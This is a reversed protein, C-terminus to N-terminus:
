LTFKLVWVSSIKLFAPCFTVAEFTVGWMSKDFRRPSTCEIKKDWELIQDNTHIHWLM